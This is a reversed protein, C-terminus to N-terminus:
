GRAARPGTVGLPPGIVDLACRLRDALVADCRWPTVVDPVLDRCDRLDRGEIVVRMLVPWAAPRRAGGHALKETADLRKAAAESAGRGSPEPSPPRAPDVAGLGTQARAHARRLAEGILWRLDNLRPDRPALARTARMVDFPDLARATM